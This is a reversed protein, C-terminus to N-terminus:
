PAGIYVQQEYDLSFYVGVPVELVLNGHLSSVFIIGFHAAEWEAILARASLDACVLSRDLRASDANGRFVWETAVIAVSTAVGNTSSHHAIVVRVIQKNM